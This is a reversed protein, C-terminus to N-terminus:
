RVVTSTGAAHSTAIARCLEVIDRGQGRLTGLRVVEDDLEARELLREIEQYDDEGARPDSQLAGVLMLAGEVDGVALRREAEIVLCIGLDATRGIDLADRLARDLHAGVENPRGLRLYLQALNANCIIQHQRTELKMSTELQALYFGEAARYAEFSGTADGILHHLTGLNGRAQNELELDGISIAIALAEHLWTMAEDYEGALRTVGAITMYARGQELQDSCATAVALARQATARAQDFEGANAQALAVGVLTRSLATGGVAEALPLADALLASERDHDGREAAAWSAFYLATARQESDLERDLLIGTVTEGANLDGTQLCAQALALLAGAPPEISVENRLAVALELLRRASASQGSQLARGGAAEYVEAAGRSDGALRRHDAIIELFESLREGTHVSLWDDALAHLRQRDRLLVTEYIVDRLLAHKFIFEAAIALSSQDRRYILERACAERLADTTDHAPRSPELASVAADWFVRGVVSAQQLAARPGAALSDLRAELVGTLTSPVSLPDLRALDLRWPVDAAGPVIVGDDILMKILEEVFFPNGEARRVILDVLSDPPGIVHQLVDAILTRTTDDALPTLVLQQCPLDDVLVNPRQELLTPRAAVVFLTPTASLRRTLNDLLSLSDSDAWHLDELVVLVVDDRALELLFDSFHVEAVSSFATSGQLQRVSDNSSLDFGLWHGVLVAEAPALHPAFGERIKDAVTSPPDSDLISFRSAVLDRFVGYPINQRTALARAKLFYVDQALLEVWNEFEYLLRSKGVGAEGVLAITRSRREHTTGDLGRRLADLEQERGAMVTEVGEIGRTPMRFTRPKARLVVYPRVPKTRGKVNLPELPSVDFVGRVHRYTEHAIMVGNAPALHELRSAVNVTDGMATFERTTAVEGLVVAGTCIGVRMVLSRGTSANFDVVARQLALGARVAQEPDNENSLEAGWVAMVADGIHKDIRGGFSTVIHDLRSWVENMLNSVIEADVAEALSTFGQLDTFLVTAQRRRQDTSGLVSLRARLSGVTVDIIDDDVIGRLQEQAAIARQLQERDDM